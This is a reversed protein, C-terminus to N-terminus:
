AFCPLPGRRRSTRRYDSATRRGGANLGERLSDARPGAAAFRTNARREFASLGVRAAHRRTGPNVVAVGFEQDIAAVPVGIAETAAQVDNAVSALDATVLM